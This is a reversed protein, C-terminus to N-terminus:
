AAVVLVRGYRVIATRGFKSSRRVVARRELELEAEAKVASLLEQGRRGMCTLAIEIEESPTQGALLSNKLAARLGGETWTNGNLRVVMKVEKSAQAHRARKQYAHVGLAVLM